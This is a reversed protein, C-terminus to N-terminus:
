IIYIYLFRLSNCLTEGCYVGLNYYTIFIQLDEIKKYPTEQPTLFAKCWKRKM